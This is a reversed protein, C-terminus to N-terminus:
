QKGEKKRREKKLCVFGAFAGMPYLVCMAIGVGFFYIPSTKSFGPINQPFGLAQLKGMRLVACFSISSSTDNTGALPPPHQRQSATGM